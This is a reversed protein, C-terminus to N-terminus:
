LVIYVNGKKGLVLATEGTTEFTKAQGLVVKVRMGPRIESGRGDFLYIVGENGADDNVFVRLLPSVQKKTKQYQGMEVNRVSLLETNINRMGDRIRTINTIKIEKFKKKALRFALGIERQASDIMRNMEQKMISEDGGSLMMMEYAKKFFTEPLHELNQTEKLEAVEQLEIGAIESSIGSLRGQKGVEDLEGSLPGKPVNLGSDDPEEPEGPEGPEIPEPEPEPIPEPPPEGDGAREALQPMGSGIHEIDSIAELYSTLFEQVAKRGSEDSKKKGTHASAKLYIREITPMMKSKVADAKEKGLGKEFIQTIPRLMKERANGPPHLEGLSGTEKEKGASFINAFSMLEPEAHKRKDLYQQAVVRVSPDKDFSLEVLAFSAAPDTVEGLSKAAQKRVEPNEDFTLSVLKSINSHASDM